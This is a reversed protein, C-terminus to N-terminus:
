IDDSTIKVGNECICVAYDMTLDYSFALPVDGGWHSVGRKAIEHMFDSLIDIERYGINVTHVRM